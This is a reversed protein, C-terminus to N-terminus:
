NFEREFLLFFEMILLVFFDVGLIIFNIFFFCFDKYLVFSLIKFVLCFFFIMCFFLIYLWFIFSVFLNVFILLKYCFFFLM